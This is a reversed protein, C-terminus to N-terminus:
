DAGHAQGTSTRPSYLLCRVQHDDALRIMAPETLDCQGAMFERCRTHFPCGAPRELPGPIEGGIARLPQGLNDLQPIAELLSRTYPHLPEHIITRVPGQEVVQGLYMVAVDDAIQAIVGLDHTIFIIAMHFEAQLQRLLALIQAQITVDLATTPEDAILLAPNCALAAAILARQRMGGSLEFPYQDFRQAPNSIGVRGMMEIAIARAERKGASTHVRISETIQAGVTYVPSFAAMPEQFIMSIEGGRIRRIERGKPALGVIEVVEGGDRNLRISSIPDILGTEPLLQMVAKTAVSKGSGSEGVIGLTKGRQVTLDVGHVVKVLGEDSRFSIQLNQVQLLVDGRRRGNTSMEAM